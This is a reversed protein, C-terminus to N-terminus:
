QTQARRIKDNGADPLDNGYETLMERFLAPAVLAAHAAPAGKVM